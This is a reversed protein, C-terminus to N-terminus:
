VSKSYTTRKILNSSLFGMFKRLLVALLGCILITLCWFTNNPSFIGKTTCYTIVSFVTLHTLYFEFSCNGIHQFVAVPWHCVRQILLCLLSLALCLGPTILIFPYWWMGFDTLSAPFYRYCLELLVAGALSLVIWCGVTRKKITEQEQAARAFAYRHM